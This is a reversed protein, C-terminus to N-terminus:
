AARNSATFVALRQRLAAAQDALVAAAKLRDGVQQDLGGAAQGVKTIGLTVMSTNTATEQVNRAIEQTATNQQEAAAAVASIMQSIGGVASTVERIAAVAATTAAQVAQIQAAIDGTARATQNALGKVEGAVVAFGKGADGARAAEITANLALLNTQGAISQILSLVSGIKEVDQSLREILTLAQDANGSTGEARQSAHNVQRSIEAISANLEETAAAVTQVNAASEQAAVAVGEAEEASTRTLSQMEGAARRMDDAMRSVGDVMGGLEGEFRDVLEIRDKRAKDQIATFYASVVLSMDYTAARYMADIMLATDNGKHLDMWGKPAAMAAALQRLVMAYGAMYWQPELGLTAHIRGIKEVSRAYEPGFDGKFLLRWHARQKEAAHKQAQPSSFMGILHPVTALAKYFADVAGDVSSVMQESVAALRTKTESDMGVFELIRADVDSMADELNLSGKPQLRRIARFRRHM